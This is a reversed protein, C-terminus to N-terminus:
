YNPQYPDSGSMGGIGGGLGGGLGGVGKGGEGGPFLIMKEDNVIDALIEDDQLIETGVPIKLIMDKGAAGTRNRGAGGRGKQAKFHKQFRYDVLTNLSKTGEIVIDGGKGGNGGDPGGFEVYKERRFASIGDGGSGAKVDIIAQDIFQM